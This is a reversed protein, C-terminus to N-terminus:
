SSAFTVKVGVNALQVQLLLAQVDDDNTAYAMAYSIDLIRISELGPFLNKFRFDQDHVLRKWEDIIRKAKWTEV